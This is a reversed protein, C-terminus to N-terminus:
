LVRAARRRSSIQGPASAVAVPVHHAADPALLRYQQPTIGAFERFERTMHAQDSYGAELALAALSAESAQRLPELLAQFRMLRAYRKPSLGTAQKFMAIFSRHSVGSDRVMEEVRSAQPFDALALTVAPHMGSEGTLRAALLSELKLLMRHPSRAQAIQELVSGAQSGWLESLPTHRGALEEASVGFLSMAAGPLLQVGVTVVPAGIEKTYFGSRAGGVVPENITTGILDDADRYIRLAPGSLRFVLHMQGTPLVHERARDGAAESNATWLQKIFPTLLPSPLKAPMDPGSNTPRDGYIFAIVARRGASDEDRMAKGM